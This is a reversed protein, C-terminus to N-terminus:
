KADKIRMYLNYWDNISLEQARVNESLKLEKVYGLVMKKDLRLGGSLSNILKKRKEGFGARVIKFFVNTDVDLTPKPKLIVVQSDVKPPPDFLDASIEDGLYCDAYFQAAVSLISMKGPKNVIRLAVEKQILLVILRPQNDAELLRRVLHSTLYYPINAVVKYNKPLNSLNFDLIDANHIQLRDSKISTALKSALNQDFEVAVVQKARDLLIQTLTGLGPGVELVVDESTLDASDAISSLAETDRLWHQGLSKNPAPWDVM